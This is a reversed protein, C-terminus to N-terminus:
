ILGLERLYRRAERVPIRFVRKRGRGIRTARLYGNLIEKRVFTSSMGIIGALEGTTLPRGILRGHTDGSPYGHRKMLALGEAPDSGPIGQLIGLLDV